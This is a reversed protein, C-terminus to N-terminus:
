RIFTGCARGPGAGPGPVIGLVCPRRRRRGRHDGLDAPVPMRRRTPRRPRRPRLLVDAPDGARLLLGLHRQGAIASSSWRGPAPRCRSRSSRGSAWSAARDAPDRGDVLLFFRSSARRGAALAQGARGVAVFSTAEGGADRVLTVIAFAGLTPSATPRWTSCCRRSRPSRTRRRPGRRAQVGLLAPSCSAPTRSRPTPWCGSSTPRRRDGAGRRRGHHPDRHDVADAALDLPRRRLRRLVAAAPRRVGRGQHRRGHLRHGRDPRGPLRRADLGPVARRRGQVAPRGRAHGHRDAAAGPQRHRQPGGRQHRRVADLRRLRLDARRRLPLLRLLLGRAPLVEARGGPEAAPASPGARLAPLAAALAGRARRVHHAPRQRGPLADDRRGRVDAAPLGRHPRPGRTSAEREAETGPLAAAQGAFASVGAELRREAFLLVGGLAFVLVLGWMFVRRATSPSRARPPSSAAPSAGDGISTSTRRRRLDIGVSRPSSAPRGRAPRPSTAASARCSRRSSRRRRLRRRLRRAAALAPRVRHHAQRLEM